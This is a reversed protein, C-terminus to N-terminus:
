VGKLLPISVFEGVGWTVTSKTLTAGHSEATRREGLRRYECSKEDWPRLLWFLAPCLRKKPMFCDRFLNLDLFTSRDSTQAFVRHSIVPQRSTVPVLGASFGRGCKVNNYFLLTLSCIFLHTHHMFCYSNRRM